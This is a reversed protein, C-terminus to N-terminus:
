PFRNNRKTGDDRLLNCAGQVFSMSKEMWWSMCSIIQFNRLREFVPPSMKSIREKFYMGSSPHKINKMSSRRFIHFAKNTIRVLAVEGMKGMATFM